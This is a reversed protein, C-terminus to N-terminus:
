QFVGFFDTAQFDHNSYGLKAEEIDTRFKEIDGICYNLLITDKQIPDDTRVFVSSPKELGLTEATKVPDVLLPLPHATGNKKARNYIAPVSALKNFLFVSFNVEDRPTLKEAEPV